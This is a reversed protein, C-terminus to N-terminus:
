VLDGGDISTNDLISAWDSSNDATIKQELMDALRSKYLTKDISKTDRKLIFYPLTQMYKTDNEFQSLYRRACSLVEAETRDGLDRAKWLTRLRTAINKASDRWSFKGDKMGTPWLERLQKALSYFFDNDPSLVLSYEDLIEDSNLLSGDRISVDYM